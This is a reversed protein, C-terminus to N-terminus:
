RICVSDNVLVWTGRPFFGDESITKLSRQVQRIHDSPCVGIAYWGSKFTFMGAEYGRQRVKKLFGVANSKTKFSGVIICYRTSFDASLLGHFKEPTLLPGANKVISDMAAISDVLALSDRERELRVLELSDQRAKEVRRIEARIEEIESSTPRRALIRFFDCGSVVLLTLGLLLFGIKKM